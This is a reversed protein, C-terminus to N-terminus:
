KIRLSIVLDLGQSFISVGFNTFDMGEERESFSTSFNSSAGSSFVKIPKLSLVM